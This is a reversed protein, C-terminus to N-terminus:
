RAFVVASGEVGVFVREGRRPLVDANVRCRVILDGAMRVTVLGDHGFYAREVVVGVPEPSGQEAAAEAPAAHVVLQEPRLVVDVSGTASGTAPGTPDTAPLRGLRCDVMLGDYTGPLVVADGVFSAVALSAPREYLEVPDATQAMRGDLLVSVQDAVSLAELQDHTVLLATAGTARLAALVEDRVQARLGTDLSSFPEDLVVISPNPALARALAVRHQQGGSLENPRRRELGPLGVLELLERVREVSAAGKPLGFGVNAGVSLHPFLAGEQPVVGVHRREPPVMSTPSAVPTGDIEIVGADPREFGAILRLLTTKGSGSPGLIAAVTGSPVELDLSRLVSQHGFSKDVGRVRLAIPQETM